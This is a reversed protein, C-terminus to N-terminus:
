KVGKYVSSPNSKSSQCEASLLVIQRESRETSDLINIIKFM